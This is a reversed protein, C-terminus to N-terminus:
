ANLPTRQPKHTHIDIVQNGTAHRYLNHICFQHKKHPKCSSSHTKFKGKEDKLVAGEWWLGSEKSGLEWNGCWWWCCRLPPFAPKERLTGVRLVKLWGTRRTVWLSPIVTELWADLLLLVEKKPRNARFNLLLYTPKM